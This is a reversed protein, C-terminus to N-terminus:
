EAPLAFLTVSCPGASVKDSAGEVTAEEIRVVPPRGPDNYARPDNGAIQWRTGSGSLKAGKVTLPIELAQMTPNVVAVTLTKHDQSWAATKSTKICGIVNVTQAYNAMFVVDSQRAMEHLGAAIGMADRLFYRTGLEGFVHGGYWYNWEDLAIRIDRGKLSDLRKGYDRQANTNRRVSDPIQRMHQVLEPKERCYFHESLLDMHGACHTLMAESWRGTAGVGILRVSPDVARMAEAFENHKQAYKELPMHGLQRKGYMENGISWFKLGYPEAHGNAARLKGM